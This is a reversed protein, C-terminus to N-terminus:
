HQNTFCFDGVVVCVTVVVNVYNWSLINGFFVVCSRDSLLARPDFYHPPRFFPAFNLIEVKWWWETRTHCLNYNRHCKKVRRHHHHHHHRRRRPFCFHVSFKLLNCTYIERLANIWTIVCACVCVCVSSIWNWPPHYKRCAPSGPDSSLTTRFTPRVIFSKRM